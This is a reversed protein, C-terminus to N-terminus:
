GNRQRELQRGLDVVQLRLGEVISELDKIRESKLLEAHAEVIRRRLAIGGTEFIMGRMVSAWPKGADCGITRHREGGRPDGLLRMAADKDGELVQRLFAQARATATASIHDAASDILRGFEDDILEAVARQLSAKREDSLCAEAEPPLPPSHDHLEKIYKM